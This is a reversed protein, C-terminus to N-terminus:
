ICECIVSMFSVVFLLVCICTCSNISNHAHCLSYSSDTVSFLLLCLSTLSHTFPSTNNRCVKNVIGGNEMVGEAGMLCLDIDEFLTAVATDPIVRTPIGAAIYKKAVQHGKREPSGETIILNFQKELGLNIYEHLPDSHCSSNSGDSTSNREAAHMLLCAVVRSDGLM